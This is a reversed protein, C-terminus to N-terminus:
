RNPPRPRACFSCATSSWEREVIVGGDSPNGVHELWKRSWVGNAEDLHRRRGIWVRHTASNDKGTLIDIAFESVLAHAWCLETPGYPTYLAGCYPEQRDEAGVPWEVVSLLPDGTDNVGCRLCGSGRTVLVAHAAVAHPELWGFLISPFDTSHFQVDSLFAEAAWNGMSSVILDFSALEQVLEPVDPGVRKSLCKIDGLHPYTEQIQRALEGAKNKNVSKAGLTHRSVNPWDLDGPDVLSLNGVGAQALLRAVGSGLSGCGLVAVTSTRLEDQRPDGDRGHIWGHDARQVISKTVKVGTSLRRNVMLKKPVRGPRFGADLPRKARRGSVDDSSPIAVTGFCVGNVSQAGIVVDIASTCSITLDELISVADPSRLRALERLDSADTPYETPILPRRLWMLVADEFAFDGGHKTAAGRRKLWQSLLDANEGFVRMGSGSWVKVIRSPGSPDLISDFRVLGDSAIAWYSLFESRFEDVNRRGVSETALDCARKLLDEVVDSTKGNSVAADPSLICLLGDREVHPWALVGPFEAVAIRPATYPFGRDGLVHFERRQGDRCSACVRWGVVFGGRYQSLAQATLRTGLARNVFRDVDDLASTRRRHLENLWDPTVGAM